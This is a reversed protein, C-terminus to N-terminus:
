FNCTNREWSLARGFSLQPDFVAEAATRGARGYYRLFSVVKTCAFRRLHALKPSGRQLFIM